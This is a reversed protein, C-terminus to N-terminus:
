FEGLCQHFAERKNTVCKELWPLREENIDIHMKNIVIDEAINKNHAQLHKACVLILLSCPHLPVCDHGGM